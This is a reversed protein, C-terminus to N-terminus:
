KYKRGELRGHKIYHITAFREDYNKLDQNFHIYRNFDFDIPLYLDKNYIRKENKGSHIYHYILQNENLKDLDPNLYKYSEATFDFPLLSSMNYRRNEHRGTSVFHSILRADDGNLDPNLCRYGKVDFDLPIVEDTLYPRKEIRGFKIYHIYLEIMDHDYLDKNLIKYNTPVFKDPIFEKARNFYTVWDDTYIIDYSYKLLTQDRIILSKLHYKNLFDQLLKDNTIDHLQTILACKLYDGYKCRQFYDTPDKIGPLAFFGFPYDMLPYIDAVRIERGPFNDLFHQSSYNIKTKTNDTFDATFLDIFFNEDIYDLIKYGEKSKIIRFGAYLLEMRFEDTIKAGQDNMMMLDIDDDWPIFGRHRICGLMTGGYAFFEIGHKKMLEKIVYFKIYRQIQVDKPLVLTSILADKELKYHQDVMFFEKMDQVTKKNVYLQFFIELNIFMWIAYCDDEELKYTSLRQVITSLDFINLSNIFGEELLRIVIEYKETIIRELPLAFGIKKRQIIDPPLIKKMMEKLIFKPCDLKESINKPDAELLDMLKMDKLWKIKFEKPVRYFCYEVLDHDLFPARGQVSAFSTATDFRYLLGPLHLKLMVYGIKDQDNLNECECFCKDFLSKVGEDQKVSNIWFEPKCIIAKKDEKIYAYRNMFFQYFPISTDKLYNYYSIFLRGYGYFLEDAGEGSLVVNGNNKIIKSALYILPENPVNLPEGKYDILDIMADLYEDTNTIINQHETAFKEAMINAYEFENDTDFGISYTFVKKYPLEGSAMLQYIIAIIASSDLGGSLFVNVTEENSVNRKVASGLLEYLSKICIYLDQDYEVSTPILNWYEYLSSQNRHIMIYKSPELKKISSFFTNQGIVNRYSLYSSISTPSIKCLDQNLSAVITPIDSAFILVDGDEYYYLQKIGLRDRAIIVMDNKMDYLCFAFVGIFHDIFKIGHEVYSKVILEADSFTKFIQGKAILQKRIDSSNYIKGDCILIKGSNQYPQDIDTDEDIKFQTSIFHCKDDQYEGNSTPGRYYLMQKVKEYNIHFKKDTPKNKIILGFLGSM